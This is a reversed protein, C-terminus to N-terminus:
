PLPRFVRNAAADAGGTDMDLGFVPFIAACDPQRRSSHCDTGPREGIIAFTEPDYVPAVFDVAAFLPELDVAVVTEDSGAGAATSAPMSVAPTYVLGCSDRDSLAKGEAPGCDMSGIHLYGEGFRGDTVDVTHNLVFHRYGTAWNWYMEGMPSPADEASSAAIVARMLDQPVGIRFSVETVSGSGRQGTVRDNVRDTGEGFSISGPACSGSTADTLDILAVAQGDRTIQFPSDSLTAAIETGDATRFAVDSVYFRLDSIGITMDGAPGLGSLPATCGVPMDGHMAVFRLSFPVTDAAATGQAGLSLTTVALAIVSKLM